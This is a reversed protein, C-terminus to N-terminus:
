KRSLCIRGSLSERLNGFDSEVVVALSGAPESKQEPAPRGIRLIRTAVLYYLVGALIAGVIWSIDAGGMSKAIPGEYLSSNVFPVEVGITLVYIGVAWWNVAGYIGDPKFIEEIQYHGRRVLYYDTLNIATWPILFYLLFLVFNSLDTLSHAPYGNTTTHSGAKARASTSRPAPTVPDTTAIPTEDTFLLEPLRAQLEFSVYYALM